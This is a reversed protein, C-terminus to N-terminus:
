PYLTVSQDGSEPKLFQEILEWAEKKQELSLEQLKGLADSFNNQLSGIYRYSKMLEHTWEQVRRICVEKIRRSKITVANKLMKVIGDVTPETDEKNSWQEMKLMLDYNYRERCYQKKTDEDLRQQINKLIGFFYPLKKRDTKTRIAKLFAAESENIAKLGYAKITREARKLALLDVKLGHHQIIWHIRDLKLQEEETGAKNKKHEIIRRREANRNNDTVPMAMQEVPTTIKKNRLSLRNRMYIYVSILAELFSKAIAKPSSIDLCITGLAKKMQSFAGEDTGNGKPNAPGVPVLEIDHNKLYISVNDCLNASGHDCLVGVPTGWDKIHSELVKIVEMGTETDAVSFSTHSFSAVDVGIEVNFKFANDGLRVTFESGDISLLGNPIKQCLSQYFKPRRNRTQASALDNAILIENVTTSSLMVGDKKLDETFQKLRIRNGHEKISKAKEYIHRVTQATVRSAKGRNDPVFVPKMREDFLKDWNSLTSVSIGTVWSVYSM